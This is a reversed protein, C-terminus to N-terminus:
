SGTEFSIKGDLNMQVAAALMSGQTELSRDLQRVFAYRLYFYLVATSIFTLALTGLLLFATLRFRISKM